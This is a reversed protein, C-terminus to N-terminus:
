KASGPADGAGPRARHSGTTGGAPTRKRRPGTRRGHSVTPCCRQDDGKAADLM